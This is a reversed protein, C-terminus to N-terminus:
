SCKRGWHLCFSEKQIKSSEQHHSLTVTSLLVLKQELNLSCPNTTAQTNINLMSTKQHIHILPSIVSEEKKNSYSGNM